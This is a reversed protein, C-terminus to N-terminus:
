VQGSDETLSNYKEKAKKNKEEQMMKLETISKPLTGMSNIDNSEYKVLAKTIRYKRYFYIIVVFLAAIALILITSPLHDIEIIKKPKIQLPDLAFIQGTKKNTVLVNIYYFQNKDLNQIEIQNNNKNTTITYNKYLKQQEIYEYKKTLYCISNMYEYENKNTTIIATVTLDDLKNKGNQANVTELNPLHLIIHGPEKINYSLKSDFNIQKYEQSTTTYYYLLFEVGEYIIESDSFLMEDEKLGYVSLYYEINRGINALIVKKGREESYNELYNVRQSTSDTLSYGLNGRCSSVEIVLLNDKIDQQKFSFVTEDVEKSSLSSYIYKNPVPIIREYHDVNPYAIMNLKDNYAIDNDAQIYIMTIVKKGSQYFEKPINKIRLSLTPYFSLTKAKVDFNNDSPASYIMMTQFNNSNLINTKAYVSFASNPTMKDVNLVIEEYEPLMEIYGYFKGEKFKGQTQKSMPIKLNEQNYHLHIYFLCDKKAKVEFFVNQRFGNEATITDYHSSKDKEDVSFRTLHKYGKIKNTSLNDEELSEESNYIYSHVEASGSIAKAEYIIPLNTTSYLTLNIPALTSQGLFFVNDMDMGLFALGEDKTLIEGSKWIPRVNFDFMSKAKCRAGLVLVSDLTYKRTNPSLKIRLYRNSFESKYDKKFITPLAGLIVGNNGTEFLTAYIDADGYTFEFYFIFEQEIVKAINPSNINEYRFYCYEKEECNCTGPFNETITMIKVDSDSIYLNFYTDKLARVGLYYEGELSKKRRTVFFPDDISIDIFENLSGESRWEFDTAEKTLPGYNLYMFADVEKNTMSISLRTKVGKIIFHYYKMESKSIFLRYNKNPYIDDVINSVSLTYDGQFKGLHEFLGKVTLLIKCPLKQSIDNYPINIISLEEKNNLDSTYEYSDEHPFDQLSIQLNNPAIKAYLIGRGHTFVTNISLVSNESPNADIVFYQKEFHSIRRKEILSNKNLYILSNLSSRCLLIIDLEMDALDELKIAEITIEINCSKSPCSQLIDPSEVKLFYSEQIIKGYIFDRDGLKLGLKAKSFPVNITLLFDENNDVHRYYFSQRSRSVTLSQKFEVGEKLSIPTTEDTIVLLFLSNEPDDNKYVVETDLDYEEYRIGFVMIYLNGVIYNKDDKKIHIRDQYDSEWLFGKVMDKEYKFDNLNKFVYIKYDIYGSGQFYIFLDTKQSGINSNDYSYVKINHNEKIYDQIITGKILSMTVTKHDLKSKSEDDYTYYYLSYSSFALGEVEVFFTGKINNGLFDSSKVEIVNPMFEKNFIDTKQFLVEGRETIFQAFKLKTHGTNQNLIIALNEAGEETIRIEYKDVEGETIVNSYMVKPKMQVINGLHDFFLEYLCDKETECNIVAYMQCDRGAKSPIYICQNDNAEVQIKYKQNSERTAMIVQSARTMKDLVTYNVYSNEDYTYYLFLKPNGSKIKLEIKIDKNQEFNMLYYKTVTKGPLMNDSSIGPLLYNLKQAQEAHDKYYVKVVYSTEVNALFCFYLKKDKSKSIDGYDKFNKETLLITKDSIIPYTRNDEKRTKMDKVKEWGGIRIYGNGNFISTSIIIDKNLYQKDINFSYCSGSNAQASGFLPSLESMEIDENDYNIWFLLDQKFEKNEILVEYEQDTTYNADGKRIIFYYGNVYIPYVPLSNSSSPDKQAMFIQFPKMKDSVCSVKLQDYKSKPKFTLKIVDDPIMSLTYLKDEKLEYIDYLKADLIFNCKFECFVSIYFETGSKVYKKDISIIEDGFRSSSWTNSSPSPTHDDLSIYLNPDSFVNDLLDQEVNRRAEFLLFKSSNTQMDPLKIRYYGYSKDPLSGRVEQNLTFDESSQNTQNFLSLLTISLLILSRNIEM